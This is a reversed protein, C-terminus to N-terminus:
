DAESGGDRLRRRLWGIHGSWKKLWKLWKELRKEGTELSTPSLGKLRKTLGHGERWCELIVEGFLNSFPRGEATLLGRQVLDDYVPGQGSKGSKVRQYLVQQQADDLYAWQALLYDRAGQRIHTLDPDFGNAGASWVDAAAMQLLAPHRGTIPGVVEEWLWDQDPRQAPTLSRRMPQELLGRAQDDSLLGLVHKFGFLNWFASGEISHIRRLDLLSRRSAILIGFRYDPANALSRLQTFFAQDFAPNDALTEFEDLLLVFRRDGARALGEITDRLGAFGEVPALGAGAGSGTGSGAGVDDATATGALADGIARSLGRHFRPPDMGDWAQANAHISVLGPEAALVARLQEIFSSKGMRREAVVSVSGPKDPRLLVSLTEHLAQDRGVFVPSNGPLASGTVYPNVGKEIAKLREKLPLLGPRGPDGLCAQFDHTPPQPRPSTSTM